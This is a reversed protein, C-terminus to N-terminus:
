DSSLYFIVCAIHSCCGVKRKGAFCSCRWGLISSVDNNNPTYVIILRYKVSESHRSQIKASLVSENNVVTSNM